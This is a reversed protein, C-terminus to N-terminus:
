DISIDVEQSVSKESSSSTNSEIEIESSNESQSRGDGSNSQTNNSEIYVEVNGDSTQINKYVTGNEPVPIEQNNVRVESNNSTASDKLAQDYLGIAGQIKHNRTALERIESLSFLEGSVFDPVKSVMVIEANNSRNNGTEQSTTAKAIGAGVMASLIAVLGLVLIDRRSIIATSAINRNRAFPATLKSMFSVGM